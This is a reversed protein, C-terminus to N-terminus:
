ELITALVQLTKPHTMTTLAQSTDLDILRSRIVDQGAYTSLTNPEFFLRPRTLFFDHVTANIMLASIIESLSTGCNPCDIRLYIGPPLPDYTGDSTSSVKRDIIQMHITSQCISCRREQLIAHYFSSAALVMRKIAPRFSRVNGFSPWEGTHTVDVNHRSSCDPCRLRLAVVGSSQREFIGRLRQKGCIWCWQRTQRWGLAEEQDLQLGFAQADKRLEGHLVQHLRLRARHLKLELAGLSMELRQAVESQPLEKLYCLEVLERTSASLYGMARDLLTHLDQRELEETPDIALPDPLDFEIPSAEDETSIDDKSASLISVHPTTTLARRHRKCVNRCIGDLWVLVHEPDHLKELHRWAEMCTEQVVDEAADPGIGNLRVLRLLRPRATELVDDLHMFLDDDPQLLTLQCISCTALDAGHRCVLPAKTDQQIM